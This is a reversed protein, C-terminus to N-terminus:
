VTCKRHSNNAQLSCKCVQYQFVNKLTHTHTHTKKVTCVIQVSTILQKCFNLLIVTTVSCYVSEHFLFTPQTTKIPATQENDCLLFGLTLQHFLNSQTTDVASLLYHCDHCIDAAAAAAPNINFM